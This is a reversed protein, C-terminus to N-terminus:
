PGMGVAHNYLPLEKSISTFTFSEPKPLGFRRSFSSPYPLYNLNAKLNIKGKVDKPVKFTYTEKRIEAANLRNDFIIKVANYSSLTQRNEKDILIARYLRTGIPIDEGLIEQDSPGKGTVDYADAGVSLAPIPIKNVGDYADFELWIQRLDASGSPMKHGARSNNVFINIRVEDGPSVYPKETEIQLTIDGAGLIQTKSHAGPFRHSYLRPRDPAQCFDLDPNVACGEEFVPKGEPLFGVASMHCDQCQIKREAYVSNKWETYTSKTELGYRNVGNHCIACFESKTHLESYFHHWKTKEVFPGYVCERSPKSIFNGNGPMKGEYGAISHCFACGVGAWDPNVQDESLISGNQVLYDIPSHCAMCSRAEQYLEPDKEAQPLLEKFYQGKFLPDSYSQAHYTKAHQAGIREHCSTCSLSSFCKKYEQLISEPLPQTESALSTFCPIVCIALAGLGADILRHWKISPYALCIIKRV